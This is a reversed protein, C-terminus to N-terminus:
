TRSAELASGRRRRHGTLGLARDLEGARRVACIVLRVLTRQPLVLFVGLYAGLATSGLGMSVCEREHRPRRGARALRDGALSLDLARARAPLKLRIEGDSTLTGGDITRWSSMTNCCPGGVGGCGAVAGTPSIFNINM